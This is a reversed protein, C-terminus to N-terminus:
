NNKNEYRTRQLNIERVFLSSNISCLSVIIRAAEDPNILLDYDPRGKAMGCKMAGLVVDTVFTGRKLFADKHKQSFAFLTAKTKGYPSEPDTFMAVTGINIIYKTGATAADFMCMAPAKFNVMMSVQTDDCKVAANNILIDPKTSLILNQLKKIGGETSLDAFERNVGVVAYRDTKFAKRLAIGFGGDSGTIIVTKM